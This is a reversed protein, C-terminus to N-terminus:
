GNNRWTGLGAGEFTGSNDSADTETYTGAMQGGLVDINDNDLLSSNSVNATWTYDANFDVDTLALTENGNTINFTMDLTGPEIGSYNGSVYGMWLNSNGEYVHVNMAVQTFNAQAAGTVGTIADLEAVHAINIITGAALNNIDNFGSLGAATISVLDTIDVWDGSGLGQMQGTTGSLMTYDGVYYGEGHAIRVNSGDLNEIEFLEMYARVSGGSWTGAEGFITSIAPITDDADPFAMALKWSNVTGPVGSFGARLDVTFLGWTENDIICYTHEEVGLIDIQGVEDNFSGFGDATRIGYYHVFDSNYLDLFAPDSALPLATSNFPLDEHLNSRRTINVDFTASPVHIAGEPAIGMFIENSVFTGAYGKRDVYFGCVHGQVENNNVNGSIIGAMKGGGIHNQYNTARWIHKMGRNEFSGVIEGSVTRNLWSMDSDLVPDLLFCGKIMSNPAASFRYSDHASNYTVIGFQGMFNSPDENTPPPPPDDNPVEDLLDLNDTSDNREEEIKDVMTELPPPLKGMGGPMMHKPKGPENQPKEYSGVVEGAEWKEELAMRDNTTTERPATINGFSDSTSHKGSDVMESEGSVLNTIDGSGGEYFATTQGQNIDLYMVTGRVGCVATPTKVKFTSKKGLKEVVAKLKGYKSEFLNEFEGTKKDERLRQVYIESKEQMAVNNGNELVIRASSSAGTEVRDGETIEENFVADHGKKDSGKFVKVEGRPDQVMCKMRVVGKGELKPRTVFVPKTDKDYLMLEADMFPRSESPKEGLSVGVSDGKSIKKVEEPFEPNYVALNGEKVLFVSNDAQYTAYINTGKATAKASPTIINFSSSKGNKSVIANAKGRFLKIDAKLRKDDKDLDYEDVAVRTSPALRLVSKDNFTIEAKSNSKTRIIDHLYVPEEYLIRESEDSAGHAIDVRGQLYTIKGVTVNEAYATNSLLFFIAIFIKLSKM